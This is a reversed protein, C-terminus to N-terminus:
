VFALSTALRDSIKLSLNKRLSKKLLNIQDIDRGIILFDDVYTVILIGTSNSLYQRNDSALPEFGIEALCTRLHKQWLRPAQKLGYLAKELKCVFPRTSTIGPEVWGPPIKVYIDDDTDSNLFATVADM